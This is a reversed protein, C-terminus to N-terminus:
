IIVRQLPFKYLLDQIDHSWTQMSYSPPPPPLCLSLSLPSLSLFSPFLSSVCVILYLGKLLIWNLPLNWGLHSRSFGSPSSIYIPSSKENVEPSFAPPHDIGRGPRKVGPFSVRYGNYLLSPLGWPWNPRNRFIELGRGMFPSDLFVKFCVSYFLCPTVDSRILWFNM